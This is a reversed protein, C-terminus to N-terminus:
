TLPLGDTTHKISPSPLVNEWSSTEAPVPPDLDNVADYFM